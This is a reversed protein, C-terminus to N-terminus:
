GNVVAPEEVPNDNTVNQADIGEAPEEEGTYPQEKEAEQQEHFKREEEKRKERECFQKYELVPEDTRVPMVIFLGNNGKDPCEFVLPRMPESFKFIINDSELVDLVDIAYQANIAFGFSPGPSDLLVPIQTYFRGDNGPQSNTYVDISSTENANCYLMIFPEKSDNYAMSDQLATILLNRDVTVVRREEDSIVQKYNPFRGEILKSVLMINGIQFTVQKPEEYKPRALSEEIPHIRGREKLIIKNEIGIKVTTNKEIKAIAGIIKVAKLPLIIGSGPFLSFIEPNDANYMHLRRGDTAVIAERQVFVGNLVYRCQDESVAPLCGALMNIFDPPMEYKTEDQAIVPFDEVNDPKIMISGSERKIEISNEYRIVINGEPKMNEICKFPLLFSGEGETVCDLSIILGTELDTCSFVAKNKLVDVKFQSLAPVPAKKSIVKKGLKIIKTLDKANLEINM